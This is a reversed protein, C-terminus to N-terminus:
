RSLRGSKQGIDHMHLMPAEEVRPSAPDQIMAYAKSLDKLASKATDRLNEVNPALSPNNLARILAEAAMIAVDTSTFTPAPAQKPFFDV